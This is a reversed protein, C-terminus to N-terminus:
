DNEDDVYIEEEDVNMNKWLRTEPKWKGKVMAKSKLALMLDRETVMLEKVPTGFRVIKIEYGMGWLLRELLKLQTLFRKGVLNKKFAAYNQFGVFQMMAGATVGMKKAKLLMSGLLFSDGCEWARSAKKLKKQGRVIRRLDPLKGDTGAKFAAEHAELLREKAYAEHDHRHSRGEAAAYVDLLKDQFALERKRYRGARRRMEAITMGAYEDASIKPVEGSMDFGGGM